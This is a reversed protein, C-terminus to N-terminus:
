LCTKQKEITPKRGFFFEIDIGRYRLEGKGGDIFTVTSNCAATATFGPDYTFMGSDAFFTRIDVVSPGRSGELIDYEYSDGTTNNTLTMTNKKM